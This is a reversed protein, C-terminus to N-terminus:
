MAEGKKASVAVPHEGQEDTVTLSVMDESSAGTIKLTKVPRGDVKMEIVMEFDGCPRFWYLRGEEFGLDIRFNDKPNEQPGELALIEQGLAFSVNTAKGTEIQSLYNRSIGLREAMQGQSIKNAERFTRVISSLNDSM